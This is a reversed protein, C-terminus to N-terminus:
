WITNLLLIETTANKSKMPESRHTAISILYISSRSVLWFQNVRFCLRRLVWAIRILFVSSILGKIKTGIKINWIGGLLLSLVYSDYFISLRALDPSFVLQDNNQKDARGVFSSQDGRPLSCYVAFGTYVFYMAGTTAVSAKLASKWRQPSSVNLFYFVFCLKMVMVAATYTISFVDKLKSQNNTHEPLLPFDAWSSSSRHWTNVSLCLRYIGLM